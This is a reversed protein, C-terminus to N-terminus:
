MHRIITQAVPAPSDCTVDIARGSMRVVRMGGERGELRVRDATRGHRGDGDAVLAGALDRVLQAKNEM